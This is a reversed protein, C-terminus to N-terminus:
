GCPIAKRSIASSWTPTRSCRASSRATGTSRAMVDNPAMKETRGYDM